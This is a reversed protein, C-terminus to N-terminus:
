NQRYTITLRAAGVTLSGGASTITITVTIDATGIDAIATGQPGDPDVVVRGLVQLDAVDGYADVDTGDGIELADSTVSDWATTVDVIQDIIQSNAPLIISTATSGTDGFAFTATQTLVVGGTNQGTGERIPGYVRPGSAHSQAM